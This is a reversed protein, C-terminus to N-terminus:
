WSQLALQKKFNRVWTQLSVHEREFIIANRLKWLEWAAVLFIEMFFPQLFLSRALAVKGHIDLNDEWSLSILAWCSQSFNANLSFIIEPREQVPIAFSVLHLLSLMTTAASYFIM